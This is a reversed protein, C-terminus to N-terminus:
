EEVSELNIGYASCLVQTAKSETNLKITWNEASDKESIFAIGLKTLVARIGNAQRFTSHQLERKLTGSNVSKVGKAKMFEFVFSTNADTEGKKGGKTPVIKTKALLARFIVHAKDQEYVGITHVDSLDIDMRQLAILESDTLSALSECRSARAKLGQMALKIKDHEAKDTANQLLRENHEAGQKMQHAISQMESQFEAAIKKTTIKM